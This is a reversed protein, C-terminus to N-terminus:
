FVIKGSCFVTITFFKTSDTELEVEVSRSSSPDSACSSLILEGSVQDFIIDRTTTAVGWTSGDLTLGGKLSIEAVLAENASGNFNQLKETDSMSLVKDRTEAANNQFRVGWYKGDFQSASRQQAQRLMAVIQHKANTLEQQGGVRTITLFGATALVGIVAIVLMLEILSFGEDKLTRANKHEQTKM